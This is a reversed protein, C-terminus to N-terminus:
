GDVVWTHWDVGNRVVQPRAEGGTVGADIRAVAENIWSRTLDPDIAQYADDSMVHVVANVVHTRSRFGRERLHRRVARRFAEVHEAPASTVYASGLAEVTDAVVFALLENGGPAESTPFWTDVVRLCSRCTPALSAEQWPEFTDGAGATMEWWTRGCLTSSAWRRDLLTREEFGTGPVPGPRGSDLRSDTLAARTTPQDDTAALHTKAGGGVEFLLLDRGLVSISNLDEDPM